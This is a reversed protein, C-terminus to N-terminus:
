ETLNANLVLMLLVIVSKKNQVNGQQQLEEMGNFSEKATIMEDMAVVCGHRPALSPWAVPARVGCSSFCPVHLVYM